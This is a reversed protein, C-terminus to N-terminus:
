KPHSPVPSNTEHKPNEPLLEIVLPKRADVPKVQATMRVTIQRNQGPTQEEMVVSSFWASQIMNSRFDAVMQANPMTGHLSLEGRKTMNISDFATGQPAIKSLLYIVDLYPPQSRKLYELFDLEQDIAPLRGRESEIAAIKKALRPKLVIAEAYPWGALVALLLMAAAAWKWADGGSAAMRNEGFQLILPPTGSDASLKKLSDIATAESLIALPDTSALYKKVREPVEPKRAGEGTLYIVKSPNGTFAPWESQETGWPLVRISEPGGDRWVLYEASKTGLNLIACANVPPPNAASRALAAVTFIPALGWQAFLNAWAEVIEKRAAAVLVDQQGNTLSIRQWGWALQEPPLPFESEIQLRLVRQTSERDGGPVTLRRLSLGRAGLAVWARPRPMWRNKNVLLQVANTLREKCADTLLGNEGRELPLELDNQRGSIKLSNDSIEIFINEDAFFPRGTM